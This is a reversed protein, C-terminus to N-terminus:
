GSQFSEFDGQYGDHESFLFRETGRILSSKRKAPEINQIETGQSLGTYEVPVEFSRYVVVSEHIFIFWLGFAICLALIKETSNRLLLTKIKGPEKVPFKEANFTKLLDLLENRDVIRRLTGHQAVSIHGTEESVVICLADTLESLGISAAHRLGRGRLQDSNGSLPLHAAFELVRDNEIIVAGDHGLSHPDFISELLPLSIRGDIEISNNIYRTLLDRGKLM